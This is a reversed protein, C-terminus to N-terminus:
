IRDELGCHKCIYYDHHSDHFEYEFEHSCSKQKEKIYKDMLRIYDTVVAEDQELKNLISKYEDFDNIYIEHSVLINFAGQLQEREKAVNQYIDFIKKYYKEITDNNDNRNFDHNKIFDSLEIDSKLVQNLNTM